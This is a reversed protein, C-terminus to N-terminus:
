KDSARTTEPIGKAALSAAENPFLRLYTKRLQQYRVECRRRDAGTHKKADALTRTLCEVLFKRADDTRGECQWTEALLSMEDFSQWEDSSKKLKTLFREAAPYDGAKFAAEGLKGYGANNDFHPEFIAVAKMVDAPRHTAVLADVYADFNSGLPEMFGYAKKQVDSSAHQAASLLRQYVEVVTEAQSKGSTKERAKAYDVLHKGLPSEWEALLTKKRHENAGDLEGLIREYSAVVEAPAREPITNALFKARDPEDAFGLLNRGVHIQLITGYYEDAPMETQAYWHSRPGDLVVWGPKGGRTATALAVIRQPYKLKPSIEAVRIIEVNQLADGTWQKLMSAYEKQDDVDAETLLETHEMEWYCHIAYVDEPPRLYMKKSFFCWTASGVLGCDVDDTALGERDRLVYKIIWCTKKEGTDPWKLERHDVIELKDPARGLENPHAVWQSFTAKAIFEPKRIDGPILDKRGLETLYDQAAASQNVDRCFEVLTDWGIKQNLKASAWAAEMRVTAEGHARALGLLEDRESGHIFPLAAAASHAYSFEDPNRSRLWSRLRDKGAKTDFPHEKLRGAIAGQNANDLLSVAIFGPPLPDRLSRYVFDREPHRDTFVRFIVEWLYGDPKVPIRAAEVVRQAGDHTGYIALIKLIFLVDEAERKDATNKMADFIRILQPIGDNRLVQFAPADRGDVEQFLVVLSQLPSIFSKTKYRPDPFKKLAEVIATGDERSKVLYKQLKRIEEALDNGPEMGRTIARQLPTSFVENKGMAPSPAVADGMAFAVFAGLLLCLRRM